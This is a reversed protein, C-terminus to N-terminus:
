TRFIRDVQRNFLQMEEASGITVRSVNPWIPWNRGIIVGNKEFAEAVEAAPRKWDVMIMNAQSGPLVPIGRKTLHQEVVERVATMDDRRKRIQDPLLLSEKAGALASVNILRTAAEGDYRMMRQHLDPHAFSLGVRLGAMGFLKSFTRLILLDRRERLLSLASPNTTFHIYAEDVLVVADAPKNDLLWRIEDLPTSTGTPNNPSCVYYLGAKPNAKLLARTSTAYNEAATLPVRHVPINLYKAVKWPVEFTPDVTVLGREPSTFAAVSRILPDMSGQWVLIRDVSVHEVSAVTQLFDEHLHAPDYRNGSLIEKQAALAAQPLPGTWYENKDIYTIANTQGAEGTPTRAQATPFLQPFSVGTGLLGALRTFQRRSFEQSISPKALDLSTPDTM